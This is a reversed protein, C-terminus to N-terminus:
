YSYQYNDYHYPFHIQTSKRVSFVWLKVLMESLSMIYMYQSKVSGKDMYIDSRNGHLCDSNKNGHICAMTTNDLNERKGCQLWSWHWIAYFTVCNAFLVVSLKVM